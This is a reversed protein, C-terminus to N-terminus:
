HLHPREGASETPQESAEYPRADWPLRITFTTGEDATSHVDVSGGHSEACGRVLALGLGWGRQPGADSARTRRFPDFLSAQEDLPIASGENHVSVWAGEEAGAVTLEIPTDATGYKAANTALNWLARRLDEASWIGEVPGEGRVVFRGPEAANLERAVERAVEALDCRGLRLPLRQGAQVRHVDLLDHIMRDMQQLNRTMRVALARRRSLSAERELLEVGMTITSLPGRLDHAVIAVFRERLDREEQLRETEAHLAGVLGRLEYQRLRASLASRVATILTVTPIPRELITISGARALHARIREHAGRSGRVTTAILVPLDSWPEQRELMAGLRELDGQRLADDALLIASAGSAAERLTEDLDACPECIIGDRRLVDCTVETDRGTPALV